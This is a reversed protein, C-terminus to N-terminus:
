KGGKNNQPCQRCARRQRVYAASPAGAPRKKEEACRLLPIEGLSPCQVTENGYREIIMPYWKIEPDPYERKLLQCILSSSCGLEKGVAVQGGTGTRQNNRELVARSLLGLVHDHDMNM